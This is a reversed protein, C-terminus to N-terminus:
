AGGGPPRPDGGGRSRGGRAGPRAAPSGGGAFCSSARRPVVAVRFRCRSAELVALVEVVDRELVLRENDRKDAFDRCRLDRRNVAMKHRYAAWSPIGARERHREQCRDGCSISWIRKLWRSAATGAAVRSATGAKAPAAGGGSGVTGGVSGFFHAFSPTHKTFVNLPASMVICTVPVVPLSLIRM